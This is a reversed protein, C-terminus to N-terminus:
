ETVEIITVTRRSYYDLLQAFPGIDGGVAALRIAQFISM